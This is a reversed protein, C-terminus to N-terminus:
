PVEPVKEVLKGQAVIIESEESQKELVKDDLNYSSMLFEFWGDQDCSAEKVGESTRLSVVEILFEPDGGIRFDISKTEGVRAKHEYDSSSAKAISNTPSEPRLYSPNHKLSSAAKNMSRTSLNVRRCFM